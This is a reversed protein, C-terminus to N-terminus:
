KQVELTETAAPARGLGGRLCKKRTIECKQLLFRLGWSWFRIKESKLMLRGPIGIQKSCILAMVFWVVVNCDFSFAGTHSSRPNIQGLPDEGVAGPSLNQCTNGKEDM